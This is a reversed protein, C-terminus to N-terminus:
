NSSEKTMKNVNIISITGAKTDKNVIVSKRDSIVYSQGGTYTHISNEYYYVTLVTQQYYSQAASIQDIFNYSDYSAVSQKYFGRGDFMTTTSSIDTKKVLEVLRNEWNSDNMINTSYPDNLFAYFSFEIRDNTSMTINLEVKVISNFRDFLKKNDALINKVSDFSWEKTNGSRTFEIKDYKLTSRYTAQGEMKTISLQYSSFPSGPEKEISLSTKGVVDDQIIFWPFDYYYTEDGDRYSMTATKIQACIVGQSYPFESASKNIYNFSNDSILIRTYDDNNNKTDNFLKIYRATVLSHNTPNTSSSVKMGKEDFVYDSYSNNYDKFKIQAHDEKLYIASLNASDNTYYNRELSFETDSIGIRSITKDEIKSIIATGDGNNLISHEINTGKSFIKAYSNGNSYKGVELKTYWNDENRAETIGKISYEIAKSLDKYLGNETSLMADNMNVLFEESATDYNAYYSALNELILRTASLSQKADGTLESARLIKNPTYNHYPELGTYKLNAM